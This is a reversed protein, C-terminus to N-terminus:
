ESAEPGRWGAAPLGDARPSPVTSQRLWRSLATQSVRLERAIQNASHGTQRVLAIAEAKFEGTFKRRQLSM